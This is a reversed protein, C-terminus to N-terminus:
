GPWLQQMTNKPLCKVRVTGVKVWNDVHTGDFKICPYGQSPSDDWGPPDLYGRLQKNSYSVPICESHIYQQGSM